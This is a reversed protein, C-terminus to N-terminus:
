QSEILVCKLIYYVSPEATEFGCNDTLKKEREEHTHLKIEGEFFVVEPFASTM